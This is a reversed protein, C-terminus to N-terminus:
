RKSPSHIGADLLRQTNPGVGLEVARHLDSWTDVDARLGAGAAAVPPYGAHAHRAASAPGFQPRLGRGFLMTTGTGAWDEVFGRDCSELVEVIESPKVAPVDPLLIAARTRGAGAAAAANLGGAHSIGLAGHQRALSLIRPDSTVVVVPGLDTALAALMTDLLMADVLDARDRPAGSVRTKGRGLGKVPLIFRHM